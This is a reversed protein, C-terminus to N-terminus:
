FMNKLVVKKFPSFQLLGQISSPRRDLPLACSVRHLDSLAKAGLLPFHLHLVFPCFFGLLKDLWFLFLLFFFANGCYRVLKKFFQPLHTHARMHTCPHTHTHVPVHMCVEKVSENIPRFIQKIM